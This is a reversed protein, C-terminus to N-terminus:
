ASSPCPLGGPLTLAVLSGHSSLPITTLDQVPHSLFTELEEVEARWGGGKRSLLSIKAEHIHRTLCYIAKFRGVAQATIFRTTAFDYDRIDGSFVEVNNLGLKSLVLKLFVARKKRREVLVLPNDAFAIALPIGPLGVGSGLDMIRDGKQLTKAIAEAIGFGDSIKEPLKTVAADSMLDLTGHYQRILEQYLEIKTNQQQKVHFM